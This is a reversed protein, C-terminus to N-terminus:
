QFGNSPLNLSGAAMLGGRQTSPSRHPHILPLSCQNLRQCGDFEYKNREIPLNMVCLIGLLGFGAWISWGGIKTFDMYCDVCHLGLEDGVITEISGEGETRRRRTRRRM